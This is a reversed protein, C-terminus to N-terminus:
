SGKNPVTKINNNLWNALRRKDWNIKIKAAGFPLLTWIISIGIFQLNRMLDSYDFSLIMYLIMVCWIILFGIVKWGLRIRLSINTQENINKICGEIRSKFPDVLGTPPNIVAKVNGNEVKGNMIEKPFFHFKESIGSSIISIVKDYSTETIKEINEILSLKM